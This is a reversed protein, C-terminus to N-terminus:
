PSKILKDDKMSTRYYHPDNLIATVVRPDLLNRHWWHNCREKTEQAFIRQEAHGFVTIALAFIKEQEIQSLQDLWQHFSAWNPRGERLLTDVQIVLPHQRHLQSAALADLYITEDAGAQHAYEFLKYILFRQEPPSLEQYWITFGDVNIHSRALQNMRIIDHLELKYWGETQQM